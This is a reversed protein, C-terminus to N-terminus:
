LRSYGFLTRLFIARITRMTPNPRKKRAPRTIFWHLDRGVPQAVEDGDLGVVTLKSEVQGVGSDGDLRDLALAHVGDVLHVDGGVAYVRHVVVADRALGGGDVVG